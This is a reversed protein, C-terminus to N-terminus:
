RRPLPAVQLEVNMTAVFEGTLSVSRKNPTFGPLIFTLTYTAPPLEMQYRGDLGTITTRDSTALEGLIRTPLTSQIAVTVGPIV